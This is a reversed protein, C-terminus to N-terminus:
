VYMVCVQHMRSMRAAEAAPGTEEVAAAAARPAPAPAPAPSVTGVVAAAKVTSSNELTMSAGMGANVGKPGFLKSHCNKCYPLSDNEVYDGGRLSQLPPLLAPVSLLLLLPSPHCTLTNHTHATSFGVICFCRKVDACTQMHAYRPLYILHSVRGCGDGKPCSCTFCGSHYVKGLALLEEQKFVTKACIACKPSPAGGVSWRKAAVPAATPSIGPSSTSDSGKPSDGAGSKQLAAIREKISSM